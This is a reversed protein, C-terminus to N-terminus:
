QYQEPDFGMDRMAEVVYPDDLLRARLKKVAQQHARLMQHRNLTEGTIERYERAVETWSRIIGHKRIGRCSGCTNGRLREHIEGGCDVCSRM